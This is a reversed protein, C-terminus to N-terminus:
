RSLGRDGQPDRGCLNLSLLEDQPIGASQADAQTIAMILIPGAVLATSQESPISRTEIKGAYGKEGLAIIRGEIEPVREAASFLGVPAYVRAVERGDICLLLRRGGPGLAPPSRWPSCYGSQANPLDANGLTCGGDLKDFQLKEVLIPSQYQDNVRPFFWVNANRRDMVLLGQHGKYLFAVSVIFVHDFRAAQAM